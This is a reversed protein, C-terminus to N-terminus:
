GAAEIRRGQELKAGKFSRTTPPPLGEEEFKEKLEQKRAKLREGLAVLDLESERAQAFVGERPKEEERVHHKIEETLVSMKADYFEDDPKSAGLEAIMVKASDHEVHSETLMDEEVSGKCAPYFIEEEIMAHISLELCIEEAVAKKRDTGRTKEFKEFLEEVKRHDAKLLAIADQKAVTMHTRDGKRAVPYRSSRGHRQM